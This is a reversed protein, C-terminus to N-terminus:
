PVDVVDQPKNKNPPTTKRTQPLLPNPEAWGTTLPPRNIPELQPQPKKLLPPLSAQSPSPSPSPAESQSPSASPSSPSKQIPQITMSKRSSTRKKLKAGTVENSVVTIHEVSSSEDEDSEQSQKSNRATSQQQQHHQDQQKHQQIHQQLSQKPNPTPTTSSVQVPDVKNSRTLHYVYEKEKDVDYYLVQVSACSGM